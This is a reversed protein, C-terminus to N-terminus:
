RPIEHHRTHCRGCLVTLDSPDECGRREYTRHHVQLGKTAPCLQCAHNARELAERRKQQWHGTLLYQKYPM